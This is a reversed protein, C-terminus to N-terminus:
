HIGLSSKRSIKPTGMRKNRAKKSPSQIKRNTRTSIPWQLRAIKAAKQLREDLNSGHYIAQMVPDPNKFKLGMKLSASIVIRELKLIGLGGNQKGCYLLGNATCQPLHYMNKIVRRLEQDIKRITTIPTMELILKHLYHPIIYTTILQAKQHPKLSLREVRKLTELLETELKDKTLGKWPSFTGGLYQTTADARLPPIVEGSKSILNPNEIHWSDKNTKICFATCKQASINMGLNDLYEETTRLLKRADSTETM